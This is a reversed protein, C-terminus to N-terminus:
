DNLLEISKALTKIMEVQNEYPMGCDTMAEMFKEVDEWGTCLVTDLYERIPTISITYGNETDIDHYWELYKLLNQEIEVRTNM